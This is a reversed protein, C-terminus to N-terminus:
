QSDVCINYRVTTLCSVIAPFYSCYYLVHQHVSPRRDTTFNINMCPLSYVKDHNEVGDQRTPLRTLFSHKYMYSCRIDFLKRLVATRFFFIRIKFQLKVGLSEVSFITPTVRALLCKKLNELTQLITRSFNCVFIYPFDLALRHLFKLM